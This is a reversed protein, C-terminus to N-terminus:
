IAKLACYSNLGTARTDRWVIYNNGDDDTFTNGAVNAFGSIYFVGDLVGSNFREQYANTTGSSLASIELPFVNFGLSTNYWYSTTNLAMGRYLVFSMSASTAGSQARVQNQGYVWGSQGSSSYRRSSNNAGSGIACIPLPYQEPTNYPLFKGAYALEYNDEVHTAVMIRGDNVMVHYEIDFQYLAISRVIANPQNTWPLISDYGTATMVNLNYYDRSADYYYQFGAYSSGNKLYIEKRQTGSEAKNFLGTWGNAVALNYIIDVLETVSQALGTQYAM